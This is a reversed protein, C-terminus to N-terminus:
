GHPVEKMEMDSIINNAADQTFTGTLDMVTDHITVTQLGDKSVFSAHNFIGQHFAESAKM